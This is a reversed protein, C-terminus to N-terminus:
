RECSLYLAAICSVEILQIRKLFPSISPFTLWKTNNSRLGSERERERVDRSLRKWEDNSVLRILILSMMNGVIGYGKSYRLLIPRSYYYFM